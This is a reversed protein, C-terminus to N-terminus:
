PLGVFGDSEDIIKDWHQITGDPLTTWGHQAVCMLAQTGPAYQTLGQGGLAVSKSLTIFPEVNPILPLAISPNDTSSLDSLDKLCALAPSYQSLTPTGTPFTGWALTPRKDSWGATSYPPSTPPTPGAADTTTPNWQVVYEVALQQNSKIAVFSANNGTLNFTFAAPTCSGSYNTVRVLGWDPTGSDYSSVPFVPLNGATPYTTATPCGITCTFDLEMDAGPSSPSFQTGGWTNGSWAYGKSIKSCDNTNVTVALDLVFTGGAKAGTINSIAILYPGNKTTNIPPDSTGGGVTTGTLNTTTWGNIKFTVGAPVDLKVSNIVSNAGNTAPNTWTVKLHPITQPLQQPISSPDMSISFIKDAAAPLAFAALGMAMLFCLVKRMSNM